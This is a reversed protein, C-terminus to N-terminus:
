RRPILARPPRSPERLFLLPDAARRCCGLRPPLARICMCIYTYACGPRLYISCPLSSRHFSQGTASCLADRAVGAEREAGAGREELAAGLVARQIFALSSFFSPLYVYVAARAGPSFLQQVPLALALSRSFSLSIFHLLLAAAAAPRYLRDAFGRAAGVM